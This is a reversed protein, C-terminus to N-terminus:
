ASASSSHFHRLLWRGAPVSFLRMVLWGLLWCFGLVPLYVTWAWDTSKPSCYQFLNVAPLVIFMHTLYIEYSMRGSSRLWHTEPLQWAPGSHAQWYFSIILACAAVIHLLLYGEHLLHWCFATACFTCVLGAAGFACLIHVLWRPPSACWSTVLAGFVGLAIASMGPLYAKEQWIESGQTTVMWYPLALAFIGLAPALLWDRRLLICLLPFVLYFCEEISLSWLVDWNAPLYGVLGEYWNLHLGLAALLAGGLSQGPGEIKFDHLGTIHLLSLVALLLLFCPLIRSARRLYFARLDIRPLSKWRTISNRAILFGSLVFFLFVAQYGQFNLLSSLWKPLWPKLMTHALPLRIGVHHVVVLFIAIGRM